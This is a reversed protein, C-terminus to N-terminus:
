RADMPPAAPFPASIAASGALGFRWPRQAWGGGAYGVGVRPGVSLGAARRARYAGEGPWALWLQAGLTLDHGDLSRDVALAQCLRAPGAALREPPDLPRGRRSRMLQVGQVPELARLLVAGATGEDDTVVNLCHHMGYVLYVYARGPPGFMPATRATRGARAHSALDQPGGYAEVEVIVGASLGEATRRVLMVGPLARAVELM